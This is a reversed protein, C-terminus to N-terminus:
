PFGGLTTHQSVEISMALVAPNRHVVKAVSISLLPKVVWISVQASEMM